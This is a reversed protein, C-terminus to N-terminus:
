KTRIILIRGQSVHHQGDWQYETIAEMRNMAIGKYLLYEKLRSARAQAIVDNVGQNPVRDSIGVIRITMEPNNVMMEYIGLMTSINENTPYVQTPSYVFPNYQVLSGVSPVIASQAPINSDLADIWRVGERAVISQLESEFEVRRNLRRGEATSNDALPQRYGRSVIAIRDFGIGAAMLREKMNWARQYGLIENLGIMGTIDTHGTLIVGRDSHYKLYAAIQDLQNLADSELDASLLGFNAMSPLLPAPAAPRTEEVVIVEEVVVEEVPVEVPPAAVIEEVVVVEAVVEEVPESVVPKPAEVIKVPMSTVPIYREPVMRNRGLSLGVSASWFGEKSGLQSAVLSSSNTFTYGFRFVLLSSRDVAIKTGIGVPAQAVWYRDFSWHETNPITLGADVTFPDDPRLIRNHHYNLVGIGAYAFMDFGPLRGRRLSYGRFPHLSLTYDAPILMTRYETSNLMGIGVALEGDIFNTIGHQIFPKVLWSARNDSLNTNGYTSGFHVGRMSGDYIQASVLNSTFVILFVFLTSRLIFGPHIKGSHKSKMM